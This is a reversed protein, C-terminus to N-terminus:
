GGSTEILAPWVRVRRNWAEYLLLTRCRVDPVCLRASTITENPLAVAVPLLVALTSMLPLPAISQSSCRTRLTGDRRVSVTGCVVLQLAAGTRVSVTLSM